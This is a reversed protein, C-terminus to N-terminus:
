SFDFPVYGAVLYVLGTLPVTRLTYADTGNHVHIVALDATGDPYFYIPVQGDLLKGGAAPLIVDAIGVPPALTVGRALPGSERAFGTVDEGRVASSSVFYAQQDLDIMLEYVRGKLVAEDRVFRLTAALRRAGSQLEAYSRDRLRPIIFGLAIGIILLVIGIEILTFGGESHRVGIREEEQEVM